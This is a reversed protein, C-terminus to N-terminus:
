KSRILREWWARNNVYWQITEQLGSEFKVRAAYGIGAQIKNTDVSYRLDHGLRDVVFTIESEDKNMLKLIWKTLDVNTIENRGGINYIEGSQGKILVEFIARCNDDVHIWDRINEGTGYLPLKRGLIINTIFLPILKEPFQYPGYNNSSRTVCVDLGYTKGYALTILDSAAKSASYPSNPRLLELENWSGDSISGYVEDTSVHLFRKIKSHKAKELLNQTGIVNTSMFQFPSKISNDVHSEAAFNVVMDVRRMITELNDCSRIDGEHFEYRPDDQVSLLNQINGAYTLSDLVIIKSIGLDQSLCMRVFNSGIFGAGGTVLIKM